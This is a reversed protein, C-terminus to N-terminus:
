QPASLEAILADVYTQWVRKSNLERWMLGTGSLAEYQGESPERVAELVAVVGARADKDSLYPKGLATKLATDTPTLKGM